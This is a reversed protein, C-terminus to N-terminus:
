ARFKTKVNAGADFFQQLSENFRYFRDVDLQDEDGESWIRLPVDPLTLYNLTQELSAGGNKIIDSVMDKWTQYDGELVAAGKGPGLEPADVQKVEVCRYNDFVLKYFESHGDDFNIKLYLTLEITGLRRYREEDAEMAQQLQQFYAESPFEYM